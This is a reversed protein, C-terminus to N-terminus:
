EYQAHGFWYGGVASHGIGSVGDGVRCDEGFWFVPCIAFREQRFLAGDAQELLADREAGTLGRSDELLQDYRVDGWGSHNDPGGRRMLELFSMPDDYDAMWSLSAVQFTNSGLLRLYAESDLEVGQVTLGIVELWNRCCLEVLKRNLETDNSHFYLTYSYRWAGAAVAQAYLDAALRCRGEYASLDYDPYSEQLWRYMPAAEPEYATGDSLSVGRPVLGLAPSAGPGALAAAQERDISLFMAARVRWDPIANANLYLAYVGGVPVTERVSGGGARGDAYCRLSPDGQPFNWTIEEPGAAGGYYYPNRKLRMYDDHVWAALTYPGTVVIHDEQTWDGGWREVVDRRVPALEPRACLKLFWPCPGTLEVVFVGDEVWLGKVLEGLAEAAPTAGTLLRQWGYLFDEAAVPVGDSWCASQRLTFRYVLGDPSQEVQEALGYALEMETVRGEGAPVLKMLGEFLHAAYDAPDAESIYAPDLSVGEAGLYVTLGTPPPTVTPAPAATAVPEPAGGTQPPTGGWGFLMGMSLLCTWFLSKM